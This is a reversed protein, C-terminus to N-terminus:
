VKKLASTAPFGNSQVELHFAANGPAGELRGGEPAGSRKPFSSVAARLSKLRRVRRAVM